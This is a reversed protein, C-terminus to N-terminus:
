ALPSGPNLAEYCRLYALRHHSNSTKHYSRNRAILLRRERLISFLQERGVCLELQPQYHLLDHLKRPSLRPQVAGAETRSM